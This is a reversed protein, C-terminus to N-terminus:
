GSHERGSKRATTGTIHLYILNIRDKIKAIEVDTNFQEAKLNSTELKKQAATAGGDWIMQNVDLTIKYQDQSMSPFDFLPSIQPIETVASQYTAQGNLSIQPLYATNLNKIKLASAESLLDKQKILPYNDMALQQCYDLNITDPQQALLATSSFFSFLLLIKKM